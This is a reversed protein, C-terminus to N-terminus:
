LYCYDDGIEISITENFRIITLITRGKHESKLKKRM